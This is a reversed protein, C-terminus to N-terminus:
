PRFWRSVHTTFVTEFKDRRERAPYPRPDSWYRRCRPFPNTGVDLLVVALDDETDTVVCTARCINVALSQAGEMAIATHGTFREHCLMEAGSSRAEISQAFGAMASMMVAVGLAAVVLVLADQRRRPQPLGRVPM